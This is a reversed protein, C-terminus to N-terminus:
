TDNNKIKSIIGGATIGFCVGLGVGIPINNVITGIIAGAIIGTSVCIALAKDNKNSNRM